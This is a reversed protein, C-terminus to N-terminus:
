PRRYLRRRPLQRAEGTGLIRWPLWSSRARDVTRNLYDRNVSGQLWRAQRLAPCVPTM